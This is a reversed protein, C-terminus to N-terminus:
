KFLAEGARFIDGAGMTLVVDGEKLAFAENTLHKVLETGALDYCYDTWNALGVPGNVQFLTPCESKEMEAMLTTEYQGSAATVVTVPVGTKETYVKALDQWQADQEPKFNLYYVSGDACATALALCLVAALALAIIKKM